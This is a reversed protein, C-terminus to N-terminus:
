CRKIRDFHIESIQQKEDPVYDRMYTNGPHEAVCCVAAIKEATAPYGELYLNIKRQEYEQLECLLRYYRLEIPGLM